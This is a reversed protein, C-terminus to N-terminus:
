SAAMLWTIILGCTAKLDRRSTREILATKGIKPGYRGPSVSNNRTAIGEHADISALLRSATITPVGRYVSILPRRNRPDM